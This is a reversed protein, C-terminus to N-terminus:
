GGAGIDSKSARLLFAPPSSNKELLFIAGREAGTIRNVRSIISQFLENNDRITVLERSMKLIDDLVDEKASTERTMNRIDQPVLDENLFSLIRSGASATEKAKETMGLHLYQRAMEFQTMALQLQHGSEM